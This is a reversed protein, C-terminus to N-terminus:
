LKKYLKEDRMLDKEFQIQQEKYYEDNISVEIM